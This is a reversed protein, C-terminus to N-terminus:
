KAPVSLGKKAKLAVLGETFGVFSVPLVMHQDESLVYAFKAVPNSKFLSVIQTDLRGRAVCVKDDCGSIPLRLEHGKGVLLGIGAEQIATSSFRFEISPTLLSDALLVLVGLAVLQGQPDAAVVQSLSCPTEQEPVKTKPCLLSWAGYREAALGGSSQAQLPLLFILLLVALSWHAM